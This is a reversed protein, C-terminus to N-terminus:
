YSYSVSKIERDWSHDEMEVQTAIRLAAQGEAAKESETRQTIVYSNYLRVSVEEKGKKM